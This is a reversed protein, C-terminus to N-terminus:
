GNKKIKFVIDNGSLDNINDFETQMELLGALSMNRYKDFNSNITSAYYYMSAYSFTMHDEICLNFKNCYNNISQFNFHFLHIPLELMSSDEKYINGDINPVCIIARGDDGLREYLFQFYKSPSHVHELSWNLRIVDFKIEKPIQDIDQYANCLYKLQNYAHLNPEVGYLSTSVKQYSRLTHQAGWIHTNNGNGCGIDLFAMNKKKEIPYRLKPLINLKLKSNLIPIHAFIKLTFDNILFKKLYLFLINNGNKQEHAYYEDSYYETIEDITPRPNTYVLGCNNCKVVNFIKSTQRHLLDKQQAFLTSNESNCFDCKIKEMIRKRNNQTSM